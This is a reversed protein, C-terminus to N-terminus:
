EFGQLEIKWGALFPWGAFFFGFHLPTKTQAVTLISEAAGNAGGVPSMECLFLLAAIPPLRPKRGWGEVGSTRIRRPQTSPHLHPPTPTPLPDTPM